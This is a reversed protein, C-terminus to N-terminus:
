TKKYRPISKLFIKNTDFEADWFRNKTIMGILIFSHGMKRKTNYIVDKLKLGALHYGHGDFDFLAIKKGSDYMDKLKMFETKAYKLICKEYLIAYIKFRAEIYGLHKGKHLSWMPKAGVGMPYRVAQKNEFGSIAWRLYTEDDQHHKYQKSYQWANEFVHVKIKTNFPKVKVPGLLFPSFHQSWKESSRSTTNIKIYKDPISDGRSYCIIQPYHTM